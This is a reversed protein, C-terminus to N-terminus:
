DYLVRELCLGKAPATPGARKRDRSELVERMWSPPYKGRGVEILSGAIARVMNYLFGDGEVEILVRPEEQGIELRRLTRVCHGARRSQETAFAAFDHRGLLCAAASRMAELDLRYAVHAAYRRELVPRSRSNYITYRYVKGTASKRAHFDAPMEAAALVGIDQPLHANLALPLKGTPILSATRFSAAQGRAHVGADTRGSGIVRVPEGTLARIARELATQIGRGNKQAQWGAYCTGDYAVILKINRPAHGADEPM